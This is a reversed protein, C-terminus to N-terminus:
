PRIDQEQHFITWEETWNVEGMGGIWNAWQDFFGNDPPQSWIPSFVPSGVRPRVDPDSPALPNRLMPDMIMYRAGPRSMHPRFASNTQGDFTNPVPTAARSGNNWALVGTISFNGADINPQISAFDAGGITGTTWNFCLNNNFSGGSGRRWYLCPATSEDFGRANSGIFTLNWIRPNGLPRAAFDREYNDSEIGRNSLDANAVFVGHQVMGSWGIQMDVYDDAGYTGVLYKNNNTGGFWEFSDDFGYHAQLYEGTTATGCAGWTFSNVEENPRILSGAFEVRVYKLAGCNHAADTGGYRTDENEPLGEITLAGSADNLPARGLMILGGWDGRNRSGHAQQSTMIIPRSRTGEAVLRGDTGILLVSTAPFSGPAGMIVTGPNITLVAGNRVQTIGSVRYARDNTLTRSTNIDQPLNEVALVVSIKWYASKIVRTGTYDRLQVVITHMGIEDPIAVSTNVVAGGNGVLLQKNWTPLKIINFGQSPTRGFIDTVEETNGPLYFKRGNQNNQRFAVVTYPLIDGNPNLTARVTLQDGVRYVYESENARRNLNNAWIYLSAPSEQPGVAALAREAEAASVFEFGSSKGAAFASMAALGLAATSLLLKKM